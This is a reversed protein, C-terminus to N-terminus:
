GLLPSFDNRNKIVIIQGSINDSSPSVLFLALDAIEKPELALEVDEPKYFKQYAESKVDSPSICNVQINFERLEDSLGKTFSEIAKKSTFYHLWKAGGESFTGSINLIKGSGKQIMSPLLRATLIMPARINVDLVENIQSVPIQDLRLGSLAGVDDHWVGAANVIIHVGNFHELIREASEAMAENDCLDTLFVESRSGITQIATSVSNLLNANRGVLAITAGCEAFLLAIAKGIGTSSGTVVAVKDVLSKNM